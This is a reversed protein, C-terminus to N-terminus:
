NYGALALEGLLAGGIPGVALGAPVLMLRSACDLSALLSSEHANRQLAATLPERLRPGLRSLGGGIAIVEADYTLALVQVAGAVADVFARWVITGEVSGNAVARLLDLVPVEDETPWARALGAGSAITELCGRQGCPCRLTSGPIPIHGIEGASGFAGTWLRGDLVIGAAVGTGLNLYALSHISRESFYQAVGLAAANVDNEISVITKFHEAIPTGLDLDTIGLNVANAIRRTTTDVVGPIGIGISAFSTPDVALLSAIEDIAAIANRVVADPGFGTPLRHEVLLIGDADIAAAHIKTGGIDLGLRIERPLHIAPERQM